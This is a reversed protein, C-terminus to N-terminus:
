AERELAQIDHALGEPTLHDVPFGVRQRGSRDVLVVHASHELGDGQPRIGFAEWVPALAAADGVLFRMRGTLRQRALFRRASAATDRAPDVSVALAPVDHGVDDMAARIQAATLPCTDRCNTYLFTVVVVRGRLARARVVDGDQDRLAFEVRPMAPPRLAGEFGGSAGPGPDDGAGVLAAGAALAALGGAVLLGLRARSSGPRRARAQASPDPLHDGTSM